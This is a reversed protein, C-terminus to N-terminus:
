VSLQLDVFFDFQKMKQLNSLLTDTEKQTLTEMIKINIKKKNM